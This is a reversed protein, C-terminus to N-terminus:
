SRTSQEDRSTLSGGSPKEPLRCTKNLHDHALSELVVTKGEGRLDLVVRRHDILDDIADLSQGPEGSRDDQLGVGVAAVLQEPDEPRELAVLLRVLDLALDLQHDVDVLELMQDVAMEVVLQRRREAEADEEGARVLVQGGVGRARQLLMEQLAVLVLVVRAVHRGDHDEDGFLRRRQVLPAEDRLLEEVEDVSAEHHHGAGVLPEGGIEDREELGADMARGGALVHAVVDAAAAELQELARPGLHRRGGHAVHETARVLDHGLQGVHAVRDLDHAAEVVVTSAADVDRRLVDEVREEGAM